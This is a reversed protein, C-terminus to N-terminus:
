EPVLEDRLAGYACHESLSHLTTAFQEITEGDQQHRSGFMAREYVVNRKGVFHQDFGDIVKKYVKADAASLNLSSLVEDARDGMSYVLAHIRFEESESDLKQIIYFHDWKKKWTPWDKPEFSFKPPPAIHLRDVTNTSM